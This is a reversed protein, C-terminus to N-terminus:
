WKCVEGVPSIERSQAGTHPFAQSYRKKSTM